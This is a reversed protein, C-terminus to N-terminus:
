TRRYVTRLRLTKLGPRRVERTVLLSGDARQVVYTEAYQRKRDYRESVMLRGADWSCRITATGEEDIRSHPAGPSLRRELKNDSRIVIDSAGTDFNLQNPASLLRLLEARLDARGPRDHIPGLSREMEDVIQGVPDSSNRTRPRKAKPESYDLLAADLVTAAVESRQADLQWSGCLNACAPTSAAPWAPLSLFLLAAVLTRMRRSYRSQPAM